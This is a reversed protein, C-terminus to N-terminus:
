GHEAGLISGNREASAGKVLTWASEDCFVKAHEFTLAFGDISKVGTDYSPSDFCPKQVQVIWHYRRDRWRSITMSVSKFDVLPQATWVQTIKSKRDDPQPMHFHRLDPRAVFETASRRGSIPPSIETYTMVGTENSLESGQKYLLKRCRECTVAAFTCWGSAMPQLRKYVKRGCVTAGLTAVHVKRM